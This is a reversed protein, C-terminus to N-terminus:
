ITFLSATLDRRCLRHLHMAVIGGLKDEGDGVTFRRRAPTSQAIFLAPARYRAIYDGTKVNRTIVAILPDAVEPTGALLLDEVVKVIIAVPRKDLNPVLLQTM